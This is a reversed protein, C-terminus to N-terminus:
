GLVLALLITVVFLVVAATLAAQTACGRRPARREEVWQGGVRRYDDLTM